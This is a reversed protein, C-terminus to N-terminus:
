SADLELLTERISKLDEGSINANLNKTEIRKPQMAGARDLLDKAVSFCLGAAKVDGQRDRMNRMIELETEFAETAHNIIDANVREIGPRLDDTTFATLKLILRQVKPLQLIKRVTNESTELYTAIDKENMGASRMTAVRGQLATVGEMPDSVRPKPVYKSTEQVEQDLDQLDQEELFEALNM